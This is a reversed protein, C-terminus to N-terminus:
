EVLTPDPKTTAEGFYSLNYANCGTISTTSNGSFSIKDGILQLCNPSASGSTNTLGTNGSYTIAAEPLYVAGSLSQSSGGNIKFVTGVPMLRDGYMVIGNLGNNGNKIDATSPATLNVTAGGNITVSPWNKGTSSTFVLTVGSVTVGNKTTTGSQLTAQGNLTFSGGDFIYLGPNLTINAKSNASFGGCYVGPNLTVTSKTSYNTQDCGSYAPIVVSAYPDPTTPAGTVIGATTTIKSSGSVGGVVSVKRASLTASGNVYLAAGNSSNDYIDCQTLNVSANGNDYLADVASEDLSLVCGNGPGTYSYKGGARAKIPMSHISVVSMLATPLSGNAVVQYYNQSTSPDTETVSVNIQNGWYGLNSAVVNQALTQRQSQTLSGAQVVSIVAADGATQMSAKASLARGYDVAAGLMAFVPIM